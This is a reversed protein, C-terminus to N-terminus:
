PQPISRMAQTHCKSCEYWRLLRGPRTSVKVLVYNGSCHVCTTPDADDEDLPLTPQKRNSAWLAAVYLAIAGVIFVADASRLGEFM